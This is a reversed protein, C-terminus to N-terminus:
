RGDAEGYATVFTECVFALANGNSNQNPSDAFDGMAKAAKIQEVQTDHLTFTMQQFPARDEDPLVSFADAWEDGDPELGMARALEDEHWLGSLDVGAAQDALLQEAEWALDVESTRNDYYALLRARGGDYLDLDERQVAVLTRGDTPVVIVEEIGLDAAQEVTKNGAIINGDRDILISRGAGYESLSRQLMYVGRETGKNANHVDPKLESIKVRKVKSM